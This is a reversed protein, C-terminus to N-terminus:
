FTPSVSPCLDQRPARWSGSVEIYKRREGEDRSYIAIYRWADTAGDLAPCISYDVQPNPTGVWKDVYDILHQEQQAYAALVLARVRHGTEYNAEYSPNYNDSLIPMERRCEVRLQQAREYTKDVTRDDWGGIPKNEGYRGAKLSVMMDHSRVMGLVQHAITMERWEILCSSIDQPLPAESAAYAGARVALAGFEQQLAAEYAVPKSLPVPALPNFNLNPMSATKAARVPPAPPEPRSCGSCLVTFAAVVAGARFLGM